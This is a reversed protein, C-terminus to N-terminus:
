LDVAYTNTAAGNATTYAVRLEYSGPLADLGTNTAFPGALKAGEFWIEYTGRVVFTSGDERRVLVDDVDIRHLTISNDGSQVLERVRGGAELRYTCEPFRFAALALPTTAASPLVYPRECSSTIRSSLADALERADAFAIRTFFREPATGVVPLDFTLERVEGETIVRRDTASAGAATEVDFTYAGPLVVTPTSKILAGSCLDIGTAPNYLLGLQKCDGTRLAECFQGATPFKTVLNYCSGGISASEVVPVISGYRSCDGSTPDVWTSPGKCTDATATQGWLSAAAPFSEGNAKGTTVGDVVFTSSPCRANRLTPLRGFDTAPLEIKASRCTSRALAVTYVRTEGRALNLKTTQAGVRLVHDGPEVRTTAGFRLTNGDLTVNPGLAVYERTPDYAHGVFYGPPLNVTLTAKLEEGAPRIRVEDATDASPEVSACAALVSALSFSHLVVRSISM